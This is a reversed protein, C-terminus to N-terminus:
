HEHNCEETHVHEEHAHKKKNKNKEAELKAQRKAQRLQLKDAREAARNQLYLKLSFMKTRKDVQIQKKSPM